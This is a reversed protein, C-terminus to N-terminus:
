KTEKTERGKTRKPRLLFCMMQTDKRFKRTYKNAFPSDDTRIARKKNKWKELVAAKDEHLYGITVFGTM